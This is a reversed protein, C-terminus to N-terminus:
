GFQKISFAELLTRQQFFLLIGDRAGAAGQAAYPTLFLQTLVNDGPCLLGIKCQYTFCPRGATDPEQLDMCHTWM